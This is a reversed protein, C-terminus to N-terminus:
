FRLQRYTKLNRKAKNVGNERAYAAACARKHPTNSNPRLSKKRARTHKQALLKLKQLHKERTQQFFQKQNQKIQNAVNRVISNYNVEGNKKSTYTQFYSSPNIGGVTEKFFGHKSNETYKSQQFRKVAAPKRSTKTPAHATSSLLNQKPTRSCSVNAQTSKRRRPM